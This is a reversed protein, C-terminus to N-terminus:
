DQEIAGGMESTAEKVIADLERIRKVLRAVAEQKVGYLEAADKQTKGNAMHEITASVVAEGSVKTLKLLVRIYNPSM